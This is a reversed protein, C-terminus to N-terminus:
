WTIAARVSRGANHVVRFRGDRVRDAIWEPLLAPNENAAFLTATREGIADRYRHDVLKSRFERTFGTQNVKDFEDIALVEITQLRQFRYWFTDGDSPGHGFTERMLDLLDSFTTYIASIGRDLIENVVVQLALTKGNGPAGWIYLWGRPCAIFAEVAQIFAQSAPNFAHLDALRWHKEHEKLGSLDALRELRAPAQCPCLQLKGFDPHGPLVDRKYYGLGGCTECV